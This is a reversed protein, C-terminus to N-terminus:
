EKVSAKKLIDTRQIKGAVDMGRIVRGFVTYKGDLESAVRLTIFFQSDANQPAGSHGMSVAGRGHRRKKNIEAVGIPRGSGGRGWFDQYRMDRTQPDGVQIVFNPEARHFRLGNYFGKKVLELIRAVTKPAEEPYTEFEIVGKVTDLVVVPGAGPSIQQGPVPVSWVLVCAAIAVIGSFGSVLSLRQRRGGAEQKRIGVEQRRVGTM